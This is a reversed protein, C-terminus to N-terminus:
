GDVDKMGLLRVLWQRGMRAVHAVESPIDSSPLGKRTNITMREDSNLIKKQVAAMRM